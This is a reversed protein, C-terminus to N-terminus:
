AANRAAAKAALWADVDSLLWGVSRTSLQIPKPFRGAASERELWKTSVALQNALDAKRVIQPPSIKRDDM